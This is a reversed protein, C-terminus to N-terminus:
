ETLMDLMGIRVMHIAKGDFMVSEIIMAYQEWKWNSFIM